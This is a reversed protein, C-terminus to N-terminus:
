WLTLYAVTIQHPQWENRKLEPEAKITHYRLHNAGQGGPLGLGSIYVRVRAWQMRGLYHLDSLVNVEFHGPGFILSTDM